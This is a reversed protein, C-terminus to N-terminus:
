QWRTVKSTCSSKLRPESRQLQVYQEFTRLQTIITLGEASLTSV